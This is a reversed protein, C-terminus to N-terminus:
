ENKSENHPPWGTYVEHSKTTTVKGNSYTTKWSTSANGPCTVFYKSSSDYFRYVNCGDIEFLREVEYNKTHITEEPPGKCASTLVLVAAIGLAITYKV